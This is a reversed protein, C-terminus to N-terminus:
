MKCAATSILISDLSRSELMLNENAIQRLMEFYIHCVEFRRKKNICLKINVDQLNKILNGECLYMAADCKAGETSGRFYPCKFMMANFMIVRRRSM